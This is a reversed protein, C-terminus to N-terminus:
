GCAPGPCGPRRHSRVWTHLGAASLLFCCAERPCLHLQNGTRSSGAAKSGPGVSATLSTACLTHGQAGATPRPNAASSELFGHENQPCIHLCKSRLSLLPPHEQGPGRPSRKSHVKLPGSSPRSTSCEHSYGTLAVASGSKRTVHRPLSLGTAGAKRPLSGDLAGEKCPPRTLAPGGHRPSWRWAEAPGM